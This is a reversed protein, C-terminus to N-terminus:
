ESPYGLYAQHYASYHGTVSLSLRCHKCIVAENNTIPQINHCKSCFIFPNGSGIGVWQMEELSFGIDEAIQIFRHVKEGSAAGYLYSGMKQCALWKKMGKEGRHCELPLGMVALKDRWAQMSELGAEDAFLLYLRKNPVFSFKM